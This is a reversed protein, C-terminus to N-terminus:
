ITIRIRSYEIIILKKKFDSLMSILSIKRISKNEYDQILKDIYHLM